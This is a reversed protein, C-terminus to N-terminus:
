IFLLAFIYIFKLDINRQMKSINFKCKECISVFAFLLLLTLSAEKETVPIQSKEELFNQKNKPYLKKREVNDLRSSFM